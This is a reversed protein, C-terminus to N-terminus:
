QRAIPETITPVKYHLTLGAGDSLRQAEIGSPGPVDLAGEFAALTEDPRQQMAHYLRFVLQGSPETRILGLKVVGTASIWVSLKLGLTHSRELVTLVPATLSAIDLSEFLDLGKTFGQDVDTIPLPIELETYPQEGGVARGARTCTTVDHRAAWDRLPAVAPGEALQELVPILPLPQPFAWGANLNDEYVELWGELREPQFVAGAKAIREMEAGPVGTLEFYRALRPIFAAADDVVRWTLGRLDATLSVGLTIADWRTLADPGLLVGLGHHLQLALESTRWPLQELALQLKLMAATATKLTAHSRLDSM